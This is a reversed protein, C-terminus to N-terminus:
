FYMGMNMRYFQAAQQRNFEQMQQQQQLNIMTTQACQEEVNRILEENFRAAENHLNSAMVNQAAHLSKQSAKRGKDVTKVVNPNKGRKSRKNISEPDHRVGWKMGKVGHHALYNDM